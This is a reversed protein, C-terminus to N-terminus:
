SKKPSFASKHSAAETDSATKIAPKFHKISHIYRLKETDSITAGNKEAIRYNTIAAEYKKRSFEVNALLLSAKALQSGYTYQTIKELGSVASETENLRIFFGVWEMAIKFNQHSSFEPDRLKQQYFYLYLDKLSGYDERPAMDLTLNAQLLARSTLNSMYHFFDPFLYKIIEQPIAAHLYAEREFYYENDLSYKQINKIDAQAQIVAAHLPDQFTVLMTVNGDKQEIDEIKLNGLSHIEAQDVNIISNIRLRKEYKEQLKKWEQKSFSILDPILYYKQYSDAVISRLRTLETKDKTSLVGLSEALLKNKLVQINKDGQELMKIIKNKETVTQPFFCESSPNQSNNSLIRQVMNLAAHRLEHTIVFYYRSRIDRSFPQTVVVDPFYRGGAQYGFVMSESKSYSIVKLEPNYLLALTLSKAIEPHLQYITSIVDIVPAQNKQIKHVLHQQIFTSSLVPTQQSAIQFQQLATDPSYYCREHESFASVEDNRRLGIGPLVSAPVEAIVSLTGLLFTTIRLLRSLM